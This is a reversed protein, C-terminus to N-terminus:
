TSGLWVDGAALEQGLVKEEDDGKCLGCLNHQAPKTQPM